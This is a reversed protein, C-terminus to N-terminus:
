DIQGTGFDVIFFQSKEEYIGKSGVRYRLGFLVLHFCFIGGM